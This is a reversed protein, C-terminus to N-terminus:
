FSYALSLIGSVGASRMGDGMVGGIWGRAVFVGYQAALGAGVKVLDYSEYASKQRVTLGYLTAASEIQPNNLMREYGLTLVPALTWEGLRRTKLSFDLDALLSFLTKDVSHVDLALESGGENFDNLSLGSVRMGAQPTITLPALNITTGGRVLGSYAFGSTSGTATGLGGGLSRKSEYDVWGVDARGEVFPGAELSSFGYRGGLSALFTNTTATADASDVSGYNYGLSMNASTRRDIRHTAGIVSGGSNETSGAMGGHGSTSFSGGDGAMWVQTQGQYMGRGSTHPLIVEDLRQGQRLLYSAADAHVQGGVRTEVGGLTGQEIASQLYYNFDTYHGSLPSNQLANLLAAGSAANGSMGSQGPLEAYYVMKARLVYIDAQALGLGQTLYASLSGYTSAVQDLGAQLYSSDVGLLADITAPDWTPNLLLFEQKTTAMQAATYSNTALYDQMITAEPVGAITQLLLSTWGTRDKGGSCHWLDPGPDNALTLLVTRFGNRQLSDTVFAQYGSQMYTVADAPTGDFPDPTVGQTGYININTWIAGAPVVDHAPLILPPGLTGYIEDPTRLDIDRYIRLGSLIQWDANNLKNLADTRYFVKTRMVGGNSTLNVFGTGGNSESIGALDRFNPATPLIPTEIKEQALAPTCCLCALMAVACRVVNRTLVPRVDSM